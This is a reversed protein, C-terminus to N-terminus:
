AKAGEPEAPEAGRRRLRDRRSLFAYLDREWQEAQEPTFVRLLKRKAVFDRFAELTTHRPTYGFKEKLRAVDGVRGYLLFSIQEPSFDVAGTRRVMGAALNIFPVLVPVPLKGALRIAQSLYLVGDGSANYTGRHDERTARYLVEVADDEHLFQLRPDFGLATPVVPLSFYRTLPTDILPGIFNAFRLITLCVDPRRRGFARAYNEVEVADKAYGTKSQSRPAMEESFIAPDTPESGYVATTSKMVVKRLSEAKQCAALLQMTGIVNIEKMQARGGARGPTAIVATHVVTDVETARLVKVILPNRIDARVFDTRTLEVPPEELDVGFIEGVEPDKELRQALRSGLFRSVGTVLVRQKAM